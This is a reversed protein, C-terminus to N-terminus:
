EDQRMIKDKKDINNTVYAHGQEAIHERILSETYGHM